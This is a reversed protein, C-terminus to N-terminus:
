PNNKKYDDFTKKAEYNNIMRKAISDPTERDDRDKKRQEYDHYARRADDRKKRDYDARQDKRRQEYDHYARRADDRKKRDYDALQEKRRQDHEAQRVGAQYIREADTDAAHDKRRQEYDHYARRADDRKKRDYDARQDKRRQDYEAQRVGAQYIREAATDAAQDARRRAYEADKFPAQAQQRATEIDRAKKIESDYDAKKSDSDRQYQANINKHFRETSDASSHRDLFRAIGNQLREIASLNQQRVAAYCGHKERWIALLTEYRGTSDSIRNGQSDVATADNKLRNLIEAHESNTKREYEDNWDRAERCKKTLTAVAVVASIVATTAAAVKVVTWTKEDDQFKKKAKNWKGKLSNPDVDKEKSMRMIEEFTDDLEKLSKIDKPNLAGSNFACIVENELEPHKKILADVKQLDTKKSFVISKIKEIAMKIVDKIKNYIAIVAEGIRQFFSKKKEEYELMLTPNVSGTIESEINVKEQVLSMEYCVSDITTDINFMDRNYSEFMMDVDPSLTDNIYGISIM